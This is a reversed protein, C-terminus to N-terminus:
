AVQRDQWIRFVTDNIVGYSFGRRKLHEGLRRRFSQYDSAPLGRAKKLAARYASDEDDITAVTQDIIEDTVGKQRLELRTLWQSRPSFSERNDKWFQAFATDDILGQEKLRTIVTEINDDDFGRRHLRDRLEPESRPRYSLFLTAAYYCRSILNTRTLTEIQEVSLTQDIQLGERAAVSAELRFAFKGDLFVNVQKGRGAGARLATIKKM